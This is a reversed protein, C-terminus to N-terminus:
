SISHMGRLTNKVALNGVLLSWLYHQAGALLLHGLHKDRHSIIACKGVPLSTRLV